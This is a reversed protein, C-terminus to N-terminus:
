AEITVNRFVQGRRSETANIARHPTAATRVTTLEPGAAMACIFTSSRTSRALSSVRRFPIDSASTVAM